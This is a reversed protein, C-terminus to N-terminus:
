GSFYKREPLSFYKERQFLYINERQFLYIHERQFLHINERQFFFINERQFLFFKRPLLSLMTKKELCFYSAMRQHQWTVKDEDIQPLRLNFRCPFSPITPKTPLAGAKFPLARHEIISIVLPAALFHSSFLFVPRSLEKDQRLKM